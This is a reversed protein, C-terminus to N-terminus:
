PIKNGEKVMWWVLAVIWGLILGVLAMQIVFWTGSKIMWSVTGQTRLSLYVFSTLGGIVACLGSRLGWRESGWWYYGILYAIGFGMAVILMTILWDLPKPYGVVTTAESTDQVALTATPTPEPTPTPTPMPTSTPVVVEAVGSEINLLLTSSILAPESIATIEITDPRDIRYALTAMGDVTAVDSQQIIVNEGTLRFTFRVITGDPVRHQNHDKILGAQINITEGVKLIPLPQIPTEDPEPTEVPTEVPMVLSLAIVQFPDPSTATILDYGISNVDVPLVGTPEIEQMLIRAAVETFQPLHSFLGYYATVKSLETADLYYPTGYSFVIVNKDQLLDYREALLRKLASSDKYSSDLDIINFILWESRKINDELNPDSPESVRDLLENLQTFSYSALRNELVENGAQPGYLRLLAEEFGTGTLLKQDACTNCNKYTRVDTFITIFEYMSPSSPLDLNLETSGPSILTAAKLAIASSSQLQDGIAAINAVNPIVEEQSFEPYRELKSQLIRYVSADVKQAFLPDEQYKQIFFDITRLISTYEDPDGSARFNDLILLDNGALFASRAVQWSEFSTETPDYFKRMATSGLNDAVMLGGNERWVGLEELALLQNLAAPDLSVPKTTARINGQFGQYRIHSVLLGDSVSEVSAAKGTVSFFPALELQKLQELSKMVTSIENEPSRDVGGLGPFHKAIVALQDDSGQHLGSIFAQGIEGVWYPDGGFAGTGALELSNASSSDVVDLSPGLFLNFGLDALETGLIEGAQEALLPDWTAGMAMAGPIPSLGNIIEGSLSSGPQEIGIWLPISSIAPESPNEVVLQQFPEPLMVLSQLGSVLTVVENLTDLEPFNGNGNSLIVGGVRQNVILDYIKTNNSINTGSFTVLFLQGVKEQTSMNELITAVQNLNSAFVPQTSFASGALLSFIILAQLLRFLVPSHSHLCRNM